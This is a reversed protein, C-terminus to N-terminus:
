LILSTGSPRYIGLLGWPHAIVAACVGRTIDGETVAKPVHILTESTLLSEALFTIGLQVGDHKSPVFLIGDLTEMSSRLHAM